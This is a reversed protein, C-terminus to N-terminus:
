QDGGIWHWRPLPAIGHNILNMYADMARRILKQRETLGDWWEFTKLLKSRNM